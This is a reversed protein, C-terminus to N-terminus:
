FPSAEMRLRNLRTQAFQRHVQLQNKQQRNLHIEQSLFIGNAPDEAAFLRKQEADLEQLQRDFSAILEQLAPINDPLSEADSPSSM